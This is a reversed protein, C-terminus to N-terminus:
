MFDSPKLFSEIYTAPRLIIQALIVGHFSFFRLIGYGLVDHM